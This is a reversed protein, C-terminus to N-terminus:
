LFGFRLVVGSATHTPTGQTVVAVYLDRSNPASSVILGPNPAVARSCGGVDIYDTALIRVPGFMEINNADSVSIAANETGISVNSRLIYVDMPQKQDDADLVAVSYLVRSQGSAGMITGLLQTAALVDGAAYASTDLTLTVDFTEPVTYDVSREVPDTPKAAYGRINDM